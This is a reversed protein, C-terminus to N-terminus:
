PTQFWRKAARCPATKLFTGNLRIFAVKTPALTLQARKSCDHSTSKASGVPGHLLIIRKETGYGLAAPKIVNVLRMLTVDIGFIADKGNEIPDDFPLAGGEKSDIYEERGVIMDFLRQYATRCIKPDERVLQLYDEFSGELTFARIRRPKTLRGSHRNFIRTPERFAGVQPKVGQFLDLKQSSLCKEFPM